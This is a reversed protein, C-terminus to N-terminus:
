GMREWSSTLALIPLVHWESVLQWGGAQLDYRAFLFISVVLNLLTAGLATRRPNAGAMILLSAAIPLIILLLLPSM